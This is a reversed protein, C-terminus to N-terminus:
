KSGKAKVTRVIELLTGKPGPVSGKILLVNRDTDVKVIELGQVTTRVGGMRGPLKKGKFVRAPDVSGLAGVGRHYRSGHSMAGRAFNWRKIVGSFGKGKSKGSVDVVEGESFLDAKLEDGVDLAALEPANEVRLERLYKAPESQSRSFHGKEAQTLRHEKQVGIGVQVAEYGDTEVTKKQVVRCSEVQVVTVPVVNGSDDFIQTMGVKTGFVGKPM